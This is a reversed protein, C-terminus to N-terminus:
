WWSDGAAMQQWWSDGAAVLQRWSGAGAPLFRECDASSAVVQEIKFKEGRDQLPLSPFHPPPSSATPPQLWYARKLPLPLPPSLTYWTLSVTSVALPLPPPSFHLHVPHLPSHLHNPHLPSRKHWPRTHCICSFHRGGGFKVIERISALIIIVSIIGCM